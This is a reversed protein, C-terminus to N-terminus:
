HVEIYPYLFPVAYLHQGQTPFSKIVAILMFIFDAIHYLNLLPLNDQFWALLLRAAPLTVLALCTELLNDCL